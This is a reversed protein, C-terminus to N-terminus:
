RVVKSYGSPCSNAFQYRPIFDITPQDSECLIWILVSGDYSSSPLTFGVIATYNRLGDKKRLAVMQVFRDNIQDSENNIWIISYSYNDTESKLGVGLDELRSAFMTNAAYFAKQGQIMSLLYQKAESQRAQNEDDELGAQIEEAMVLKSGSPLVINNTFKFNFFPLVSLITLSFYLTKQSVM